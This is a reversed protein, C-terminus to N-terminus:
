GARMLIAVAEAAGVVNGVAAQQAIYRRARAGLEVAYGLEGAAVAESASVPRGQAVRGAIYKGARAALQQPDDQARARAALEVGAAAEEALVANVAETASVTRGLATQGDIYKEAKAVIDASRSKRDELGRRDEDAKIWAGYFQDAM